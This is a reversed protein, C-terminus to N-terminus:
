GMLLEPHIIAQYAKDNSLHGYDLGVLVKTSTSEEGTSTEIVVKDPRLALIFQMGKTIGKFPIIQMRSQWILDIEKSIVQFLDLNFQQNSYASKIIAPLFPIDDAEVIIVPKRSIPDFLQNGTDILGKCHYSDNNIIIEVKVIQDAVNKRRNLSLFTKDAFFWIGFFAIVIIFLVMTPSSTHSIYVGNIVDHQINFLYQIALVGGGTIFSVLYFTALSRIFHYLHIFGYAIIVMIISLLFKSIFLHFVSLKPIFFILTYVAGFISAIMLRWKKYGLHLFKATAVLIFYDIVLNLLLILDLYFVM